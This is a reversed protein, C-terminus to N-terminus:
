AFCMHAHFYALLLLIVYDFIHFAHSMNFVCWKRPAMKPGPGQTGPGVAHFGYLIIILFMHLYQM